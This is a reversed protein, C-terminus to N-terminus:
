QRGDQSYKLVCSPLDSFHTFAFNEAAAVLLTSCVFGSHDGIEADAKGSGTFLDQQHVTVWLATESCTQSVLVRILYGGRNRGDHGVDDILFVEIRVFADKMM